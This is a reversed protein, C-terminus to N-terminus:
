SLPSPVRSSIAWRKSTERPMILLEELLAAGCAADLGPMMEGSALLEDHGLVAHGDAVCKFRL